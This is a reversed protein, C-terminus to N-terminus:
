FRKGRLRAVGALGVLGSGFFWAAAPLPVATLRGVGSFVDDGLMDEEYIFFLSLILKDPDFPYNGPAEDAFADPELLYSVGIEIRGGGATSADGEIDVGDVRDGAMFRLEGLLANLRDADDSGLEVDNSVSLGGAAMTCCSFSTTTSGDSIEGGATVDDIFGTFADGPLRGSYVGGGVDVDVYDLAGNISITAADAHATFIVLLPIAMIGLFNTLQKQM